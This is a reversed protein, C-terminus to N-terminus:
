GRPGTHQRVAARAQEAVIRATTPALTVGLMGHGTAVLVNHHRRTPRIVPLGDVTLTRTGAWVQRPSGPSWGDLYRGISSAIGGVRITDVTRDAAGIGMTGSARVGDSLVSLAVKAEALYVPRPLGSPNGLYDIGYGKGAAIQVREGLERLVGNTGLGAAVVFVDAGVNETSTAAEVATGTHRLRAPTRPRLTVGATVCADRLASVFRGPDVAGQDEVTTAGVVRSTVAIGDAGLGAPEAVSWRLDPLHARIQDLEALHHDLGARSTHLSTISTSSSGDGGIVARLEAHDLVADGALTTLRALGRAHSRPSCQRLMAALFRVQRPDHLGTVYFPSDRRTMWRLAPRLMGPAAIPAAMSPVIWGANRTSTSQEIDAADLVDVEAGDRALRLASALGVAGGGIIVVRM